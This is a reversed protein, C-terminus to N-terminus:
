VAHAGRAKRAALQELLEQLQPINVPKVMHYNFGVDLARRIDDQQGWGTLAILVADEGWPQGRIQRAVEYGSLKPMGIDLVAVEPHFESALQLAEEGDTATRVDNGGIRLLVALGEASDRVDDAVMIRLGSQEGGYPTAQRPRPIAGPSSSAVAAAAPLSVVFECGKGIGESHAELRGGHMLVLGRALGLGIGLGDRSRAPGQDVQTFMDFVHPLNEASIGRGNDKVSIVIQGAREGARVRLRGGADTFKAANNLLNALVQALRGPDANVYVPKAPLVVDLKHERADILPRSTEVAVNVVDAVDVRQVRLELKNQTIRSVDLLDDLLRALQGVQREIVNRAWDVDQPRSAGAGLIAVANRIPNLPNRLEHALVALFRDKRRDAERLTHEARALESVYQRIETIDVSSGAYGLFAGDGYRPVSVSKFWRYEGDARRIRAQAEFKARQQFAHEYQALYDDADDPHLVAHWGSEQLEEASCGTFIVCARNVFLAGNADNGWILVPAHDVLSRFREEAARMTDEARKRDEIDDIVGFLVAGRAQAGPAVTGRVEAWRAAGNPFQVRCEFAIPGGSRLAEQVAAEVRPRDSAHVYNGAADISVRRPLLSWASDYEGTPDDGREIQGSAPDCEWYAMGACTLARELAESRQGAIAAARRAQEVESVHRERQAALEARADALRGYLASIQAGALAFLALAPYFSLAPLQWDTHQLVLTLGAGVATTAFGVRPGGYWAAATVVIILLMLTAGGTIPVVVALAVCLVAIGALLAPKLLAPRETHQVSFQERPNDAGDRRADAYPAGQL